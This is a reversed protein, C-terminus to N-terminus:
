FLVSFDAIKLFLKKIKDLITLRNIKIHINDHNIIIKNFFINIPINLQNINILAEKYKYNLILHPITSELYLIIKVVNKEEINIVLNNDIHRNLKITNKKLINSIRKNISILSQYITLTKFHSIAKIRADIDIPTTINCILVSTVINKDYETKKYISYCKKIIFKLTTNITNQKENISQYLNVSIEILKKLNIPINYKILIRLIGIAARKLAYPDKDNKPYEQIGFIGSLTDIKDAISLACAIPHSPLSDNSLKPQYQEKIAIAIENIEKNQLAYYMGITGQIDPFECVMNTVLDCKSLQAARISHNINAQTYPAIWEILTQIRCTKDYLSGLKQHFLVHKLKPLYDELKKKSDNKFFFEADAFRSHLVKENGSIIHQTSNSIVNSVFIFYPILQETENYMSLYKQQHSMIHVLIEHPLQLFKKNFKGILATPSEVISTIEELLMNSFKLIGNHKKALYTIDKKIKEKRTNFHAIINSHKFLIDPYQEAHQIIIKRSQMSLHHRLIRNSYLNFINISIIKEGFLTCINRIPRSFKHNYNDWRMKTKLNIHKISTYIIKPLINYTEQTQSKKEYYLWEGQNNKIKIAQKINIKCSQAWKLAICSPNGSVDFSNLISPGKKKITKDTYTTHMQEIKLAIRRPTAFTTYSGHPIHYLKLQTLINSCFSLHINYLEKAPLEETGLEILLTQQKQM